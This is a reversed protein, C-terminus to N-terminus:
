IRIKQSYETFILIADPDRALYDGYGDSFYYENLKLAYNHMAKYNKLILIKDKTM